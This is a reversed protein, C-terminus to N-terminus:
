IHILSLLPRGAVHVEAVAWWGCTAAALVLLSAGASAAPRRVNM